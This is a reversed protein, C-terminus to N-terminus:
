LYTIFLTNKPPPQWTASAPCSSATNDQLCTETYCIQLLEIIFYALSASNKQTGQSNSQFLTHWQIAYQDVIYQSVQCCSQIWTIFWDPRKEERCIDGNYCKQGFSRKTVQAKMKQKKRKVAAMEKIILHHLRSRPECSRRHRQRGILTAESSKESLATGAGVEGSWWCIFVWRQHRGAQLYLDRGHPMCICICICICICVCICILTPEDSEWISSHRSWCGWKMLLYFSLAPEAPLFRLM